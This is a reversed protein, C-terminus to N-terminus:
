TRGDAAPERPQVPYTRLFRALKWSGIAVILAGPIGFAASLPVEIDLALRPVEAMLLATGFLPGYLAFRPVDLFYAMAAFVVVASVVWLLPFVVDLVTSTGGDAYVAAAVAWAALGVFVSGLLVLRAGGIMRRRRPGPRFDGLRSRLLRRRPIIFIAILGAFFAITALLRVTENPVWRDLVSLAPMLGLMTGLFMDFIGDEYFRRFAKRELRDLDRVDAVAM